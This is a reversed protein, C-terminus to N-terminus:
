QGGALRALARLGPLFFYQAGEVVVFQDLRSVCVPAPAGPVTMRATRRASILPDREGALGFFAPNNIWNQQIFEFQREIDSNLCIFYLGRPTDGNQREESYREGYSRGRRLIRHRNSSIPSDVPHNTNLFSDRPNARRIHAGIPCGNGYPDESFGFENDDRNVYPVLPTGDPWRGVVKAALHTAENPDTAQRHMFDWFEPVRQALQSLVLYSGNKGFVCDDKLTPVCTEGAGDKYGFVFEGLASLHNSEPFREADDTGALIPQSIGDVFGFHERIPGDAPLELTLPLTIETMAGPPPAADDVAARLDDPKAFVMLLLDVPTHDPGWSWRDPSNTGVHGLIRSRYATRAIGEVFPQSFGPLVATVEAVSPDFRTNVDVLKALGTASMAINFNRSRFSSEHKLGPTIHHRLRSLWLRASDNQGENIRFLQYRAHRLAPYASLLLGQMDFWEPLEVSEPM